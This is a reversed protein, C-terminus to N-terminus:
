LFNLQKRVALVQRTSVLGDKVQQATILLETTSQPLDNIRINQPDSVELRIKDLRDNDISDEFGFDTVPLTHSENM